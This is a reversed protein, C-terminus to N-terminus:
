STVITTNKITLSASTDVRKLTTNDVAGCDILEVDGYGYVGFGTKNGISKCGILVSRTAAEETACEISFGCGYKSNSHTNGIALCSYCTIQTGKDGDTNRSGCLYGNWNYRSIVNYATLHTGYSPVVGGKENFEYLGGIMTCESGDHSSWGDDSCDHCWCDILTATEHKMLAASGSTKRHANIGDGNGDGDFPRAAEVRILEIGISGDYRIAGAGFTYKASVDVLKAGHWTNAYIHGFYCHINSLEVKTKQGNGSIAAQGEPIYIPNEILTSGNAIKFYLRLNEADWYYTQSTNSVVDSVSSAKAIRVCDCRHTRGRQLPHRDADAILTTEDNIGYQFIFFETYNAGKFSTLEKYYVDGSYQTATDIKTGKIIRNEYGARGIIRISRQSAKTAINLTETTIGQYMLTVDDGTEAIAKAFTQYADTWSTGGNSDSGNNADIYALKPKNDNTNEYKAFVSLTRALKSHSILLYKAAQPIVVSASYEDGDATMNSETVYWLVDGNANEILCCRSSGDTRASMTIKLTMGAYNAIDIGNETYYAGGGSTDEMKAGSSNYYYGRSLTVDIVNSGPLRSEIDNLRNTVALNIRSEALNISATAFAKCKAELGGGAESLLDVGNVVVKVPMYVGSHIYFYRADNGMTKTPLTSGAGLSKVATVGEAFVAVKTSPNWSSLIAWWSKHGNASKIWVQDGAKVSIMYCSGSNNWSGNTNLQGDTIEEPMSDGSGNIIAKLQESIRNASYAAESVPKLSDDTYNKLVDFIGGGKTTLIDIGDVYIAVPMNVGSQVYLYAGDAGVPVPTTTINAKVEQVSVFGTAFTAKHTTSNYASLIAWYAKNASPAKISVINGQHVPIMYCSGPTVWEDATGISGDTNETPVDALIDKGNIIIEEPKYNGCMVYFYRANSPMTKAPLTSGVGLSVVATSLSGDFTVVKTSPNWSSLVAWWSKASSNSKIQIVDGESVPIIYCSGSNNWTGSTNLCGDTIEGIIPSLSTDGNISIASPKNAGSAFYFYKADAGMTVPALTTNETLSQVATYGSAFIIDHSESDFDSLVTWVAPNSSNATISIVDGENVPILYCSGDDIWRSGLSLRGDTIESPMADTDGYIYSHMSEEKGALEGLASQVNASALGDVSCYVDNAYQVIGQEFEQSEVLERISDIEQENIAVKADTDDIRSTQSALADEVDTNIIDQTKGRTKDKIASAAAVVKGTAMSELEGGIKITEAM